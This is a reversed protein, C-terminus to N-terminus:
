LRLLKKERSIWAISLLTVTYAALVALSTVTGAYITQMSLNVLGTFVNAILFLALANSNIAGMMGPVALSQRAPTKFHVLDILVFLTLFTTNFAATWLVYPLNAIRRSVGMNLGRVVGYGCWYLIAYSFLVSLLKGRQDAHVPKTLTNRFYAYPHQPLSYLGIDLGFLYICLYGVISVLGEKNHSLLNARPANLSWHQLSTLALVLQFVCGIVIAMWSFQIRTHINLITLPKALLPLAALTLFFNWHTGYESYHQPYNTVTVSILRMMALVVLPLVKRTNYKGLLHYRADVLGFALTFSGVGLDMFSTGFSETKSLVKPFVNFDVALISIFTFFLLYGRYNTIYSKNTLHIQLSSHVPLPSPPQTNCRSQNDFDFSTISNAHKTHKTHQQPIRHFQATLATVALLCSNFLTLHTYLLTVALFQPIFLVCSQALVSLKWRKVLISYLLFSNISILALNNINWVSSGCNGSIFHNKVQNYDM